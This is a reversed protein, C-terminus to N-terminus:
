QKKPVKFLYMKILNIHNEIAENYDFSNNFCINLIATPRFRAQMCKM